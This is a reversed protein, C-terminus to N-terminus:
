ITLPYKNDILSIPCNSSMLYHVSLPNSRSEPLPLTVILSPTPSHGLSYGVSVPLSFGPGCFGLLENTIDFAYGATLEGGLLLDANDELAEATVRGDPVEAM